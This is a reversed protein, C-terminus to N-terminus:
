VAELQTSTIRVEIAQTPSSEDSTVRTEFSRADVPTKFYSDDQNDSEIRKVPTSAPIHQDPSASNTEVIQNEKDESAVVPLYRFTKRGYTKIKKM